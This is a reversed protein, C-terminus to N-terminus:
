LLFTYVFSQKCGGWINESDSGHDILFPSQYESLGKGYNKCRDSWYLSSFLFKLSECVMEWVIEEMHDTLM